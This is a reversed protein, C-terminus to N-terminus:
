DACPIMARLYSIDPHTCRMDECDPGTSPLTSGREAGFMGLYDSTRNDGERLVHELRRDASRPRYVCRRGGKPYTLSQGSTLPLVVGVLVEGVPLHLWYGRM